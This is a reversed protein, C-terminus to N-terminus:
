NKDLFTHAQTLIEKANKYSIQELAQKFDFWGFDDHEDSLTVATEQTEGIFFTVTKHILMGDHEKFFYSLSQKFGPLLQARLGAEEHLERLAAQELTEGSELKGKPFDWHGSVNHLLLYTIKGNTRHYLIVGASQQQIMKLVM